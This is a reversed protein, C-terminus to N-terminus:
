RLQISRVIRDVEREVASVNSRPMRATVTASVNGQRLVFYQHLIRENQAEADVRFMDLGAALIRPQDVGRINAKQRELDAVVEKLFLAATTPRGADATILLGTRGANQDVGIQRGNDGAVRWSRPYLFRIGSRPSEHLLLTNQENPELALGKLASESVDQSRPAAERTVVFNGQTQGRVQGNKFLLSHKGRLSLYTIMKTQLDFYFSGDLEHRAPGNEDVGEVTGQFSILAVPHQNVTDRREFTCQLNSANIKELDTLEQAAWEGASWRDGTKVPTKPLMEALSPTFVDPRILELEAILLPGSPSFAVETNRERLIVMMRVEKRLKGQQVENGVERDFDLKDYARVTRDVRGQRDVALYCEDYEIGATGKIAITDDMKGAQAPVQMTGKLDSRVSVHIRRQLLHEEVLSIPTDQAHAANLAMPLAVSMLLFSRLM